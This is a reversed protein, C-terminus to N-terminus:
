MIDNVESDTLIRSDQGPLGIHIRSGAGSALSGGFEGPQIDVISSARQPWM